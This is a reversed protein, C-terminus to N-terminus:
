PGSSAKEGHEEEKKRDVGTDAALIDFDAPPGPSGKSRFRTMGGSTAVLGYQEGERTPLLPATALITGIM